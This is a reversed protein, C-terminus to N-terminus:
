LAIPTVLKDEKWEGVFQPEGTASWLVGLGNYDDTLWEGEYRRGDPFSQVGAGTRPGERQAGLYLAGSRWTYVGYGHRKDNLWEGEYRLSGAKNNENQAFNHVGSGSSDGAHFGGAYLDGDSTGGHWYFVGLGERNNNKFEGEYRHGSGDYTRVAYGNEGARARRAADEGREAAALANFQASLGALEARRAAEAALRVRPNILALNFRAHHAVAARLAQELQIALHPPLGSAASAVPTQAMGVAAQAKAQASPSGMPGRTPAGPEGILREISEILRALPPVGQRWGIIDVAQQQGFGLPPNVSAWRAQVLAGQAKAWGAEDLVFDSAISEDCWLVVACRASSLETEIERRYQEGETLRADFWVDWGHARLAAALRDVIERRSRKYSIFVDAM